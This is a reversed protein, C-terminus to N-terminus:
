TLGWSKMIGRVREVHRSNIQELVELSKKGYFLAEEKDRNRIYAEALNFCSIGLEQYPPVVVNKEGRDLELIKTHAEICKKQWEIAQNLEMKDMHVLGINGAAQAQFDIDSHKEALDLLQRYIKLAEDPQNTHRFSQGLNNLMIKETHEWNNRDDNEVKPLLDLAKRLHPIAQAYRDLRVYCEGMNGHAIFKGLENNLEEALPLYKTYTEVAKEYDSLGKYFIGLENLWNCKDKSSAQPDNVAQEYLQVLSDLVKAANHRDGIRQFHKYASKLYNVTRLSNKQAYYYYGLRVQALALAYYNNEGSAIAEAEEYCEKAEEPRQLKELCEGKNSLLISLTNQGGQTASNTIGQDFCRLAEEYQKINKYAVGLANLITEKGQFPKGETELETLTDYAEKQYQLSKEYERQYTAIMGLHTLAVAEYERYTEGLSRCKTLMQECLEKARATNGIAYHMYWLQSIHGFEDIILQKESRAAKLADELWQIYEERSLRLHFLHGAVGALKSCLAAAARNSEAHAACWDRTNKIDQWKQNLKRMAERSSIAGTKYAQELQYLWKQHESARALIIKEKRSLKQKM